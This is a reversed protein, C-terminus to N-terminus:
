KKKVVRSADVAASKESVTEEEKEEEVKKVDPIFSCSPSSTSRLEVPLIYMMREFVEKLAEQCRGIYSRVSLAISTTAIFM